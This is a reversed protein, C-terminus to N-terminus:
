AIAVVGRVTTDPAPVQPAPRFTFLDPGSTRYADVLDAPNPATKLQAWDLVTLDTGAFAGFACDVGVFPFVNASIVVKDSSTGVGPYDPIADPYVYSYTTWGTTPDANDSIAFDLYGHGFTAGGGWVCDFSLEVLFWRGHLSDYIVRPDTNRTIPSTAFFEALSLEDQTQGQRDVIRMATNVVQVIHDPGVALWPDPPEFNTSPGGQALGDFTPTAIPPRTTTTAFDPPAAAVLPSNAVPGRGSRPPWTLRPKDLLPRPKLGRAAVEAAVVRRGGRLERNSKRFSPSPAAPAVSGSAGAPSKAAPTTAAVPAALVAALLLSLLRPGTTRITRRM